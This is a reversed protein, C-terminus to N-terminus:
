RTFGAMVYLLFIACRVVNLVANTEQIDPGSWVRRAQQPILLLSAYGMVNQHNANFPLTNYTTYARYGLFSLFFCNSYRRNSYSELLVYFLLHLLTVGMKDDDYRRSHVLFGNMFLLGFVYFHWASAVEEDSSSKSSSTVDDKLKEVSDATNRPVSSSPEEQHEEQTDPIQNSNDLITKSDSSSSTARAEVGSTPPETAKSMM